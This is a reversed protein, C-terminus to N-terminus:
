RAARPSSIGDTNGKKDCKVMKKGMLAKMLRIKYPKNITRSNRQM